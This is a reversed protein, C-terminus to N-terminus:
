AIILGDISRKAISIIQQCTPPEGPVNINFSCPPKPWAGSSVMADFFAHRARSRNDMMTVIDKLGLHLPDGVDDAGGWEMGSPLNYDDVHSDGRAEAAAAVAAARRATAVSSCGGQYLGYVDLKLLSRVALRWMAPEMERYDFAKAAGCLDDDERDKHGGKGAEEANQGGGHSHNAHSVPGWVGGLGSLRFVLQRRERQALATERDVAALIREYAHVISPILTGLLMLNQFNHITPRHDEPNPVAMATAGPGHPQGFQQISCAPCNVVQYATKAASRAQRVGDMVGPALKQMSDLALYLSATCACTNSNSNSNNSSGHNHHTAASASNTSSDDPTESASASRPSLGPVSTEAPPPPPPPPPSMFLAPDINSASFSPVSDEALPPADFDLDLDFDGLAASGYMIPIPPKDRAGQPTAFLSSTSAPDAHTNHAIDATLWDLFELGPDTTAPPIETMINKAPPEDTPTATTATTTKTTAETATATITAATGVVDAAASAEDAQDRPRKRPRGM